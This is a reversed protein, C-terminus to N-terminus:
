YHMLRYTSIRFIYWPRSHPAYGCAPHVYPPSLPAISRHFLRGRLHGTVFEALAGHTTDIDTRGLRLLRGSSSSLRYVEIGWFLSRWFCISRRDARRLTAQRFRFVRDARIIEEIHWVKKGFTHRHVRNGFQGEAARWRREGQWRM